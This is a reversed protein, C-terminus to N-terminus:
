SRTPTWQPCARRSTSRSCRLCTPAPSPAGTAARAPLSRGPPLAAPRHGQQAPRTAAALRAAALSLGAGHSGAPTVLGGRAGHARDAALERAGRTHARDAASTMAAPDSVDVETLQTVEDFARFRGSGGASDDQSIVLVRKGSLLLQHGWGELELSDLLKLEGADVANLRGGAIAFIRGGASKVIDPEDVGAEQVNTGSDDQEADAGEQSRPPPLPPGQGVPQDRLPPILTIDEAVPVPPGAGPGRPAFRRGYRILGACSGFAELRLQKAARTRKAAEATGGQSAVSAAPALALAAVTM